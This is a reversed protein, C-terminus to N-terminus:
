MAQGQERAELDQPDDSLRARDRCDQDAGIGVDLGRHRCHLHPCRGHEFLRDVIVREEIRELAEAKLVRLPGELTLKAEGDLILLDDLEAFDLPGRELLHLQSEGVLSNTRLSPQMEAMSANCFTWAQGSCLWLGSAQILSPQGVPRYILTFYRVGDRSNSTAGGMCLGAGYRRWARALSRRRRGFGPCWAAARSSSTREPAPEGGALRRGREARADVAPWPCALCKPRRAAHGRCVTLTRGSERSTRPIGGPATAKRGGQPSHRRAWHSEGAHRLRRTDSLTLAAHHVFFRRGVALF